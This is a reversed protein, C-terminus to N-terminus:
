NLTPNLSKGNTITLVTTVIIYLRGPIHVGLYCKGVDEVGDVNDYLGDGDPM